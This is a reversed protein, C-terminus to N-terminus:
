SFRRRPGWPSRGGGEVVWDCSWILHVRTSGALLEFELSASLQGVRRRLGAPGLVADRALSGATATAM